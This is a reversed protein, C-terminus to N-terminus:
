IRTLGSVDFVAGLRRVWEKRRKDASKVDVSPGTNRKAGSSRAAVGSKSSHAQAAKEGGSLGQPQYTSGVPKALAAHKIGGDKSASSQSKKGHGAPKQELSEAM